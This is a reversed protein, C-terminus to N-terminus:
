CLKQRKGNLLDYNHVVSTFRVYVKKLKNIKRDQFYHKIIQIQSIQQYFIKKEENLRKDEGSM